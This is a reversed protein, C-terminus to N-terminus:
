GGLGRLRDRLEAALEFEEAAIARRLRDRIVDRDVVEDAPGQSGAAAAPQYMTGVHRTAGQLRRLLDRLPADFTTWCSACGMRSSTRFDDLTAGCDPCAESPGHAATSAGDKGMAALFAGLPSQAVTAETEIGREAACRTCLHLTTVEGAVIQTLRVVAEGSHCNQCQSM